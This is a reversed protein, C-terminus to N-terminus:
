NNSDLTANRNTIWIDRNKIEFDVPATLQIAKMVQEITENELEGSFRLSGLAKEDYHIKVNYKRQLRVVLDSLLESKLYIRDSVWATCLDIDVNSTIAIKEELQLADTSSLKHYIVQEKPRVFIEKSSENQVNINEQVSIKGEVLTTRVEDDDAYSEVNFVTGYARVVLHSTVVNFPKTQNKSVHFYAEGELFVTRDNLGYQNTYSLNSGANLVVKTGDPLYIHSKSGYPVEISHQSVQQKGTHQYTYMSLGAIIIGMVFVAAFRSYQRWITLIRNRNSATEQLKAWQQEIIEENIYKYSDLYTWILNLQSLELKNEPSRNLWNVLEKHEQESLEDNKLIRVILTSIYNDKNM